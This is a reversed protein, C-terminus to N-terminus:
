TQRWYSVAGGGTKAERWRSRALALQAEDRGDFLYLRREYGALTGLEAGDILFLAEADNPKDETTSLLIPQREAMPEDSMGHPLFSDDRHTWLHEDLQALRQPDPSRVVARWGRKLTRELLDALVPELASR